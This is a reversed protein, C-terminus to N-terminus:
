LDYLESMKKLEQKIKTLFVQDGEVKACSGWSLVWRIAEIIHNTEFQIIIDEHDKIIEQQPHWRRERAYVACKGTFRVRVTVVKNGQFVGFYDGIFDDINFDEPIKFETRILRATLIRSIAFIRVEKRLHCYGIVYWEGKFGLIHYPNLKRKKPQKTGPTLYEMELVRNTNLANFVAKWVKTRIKPAPEPIFSLRPHLWDADITVKQPLSLRIKKFINELTRYLPTNHYQTLVKEAIYIAFIEGQQLELQPLKFEPDTYYYGHRSSDYEIPANLDYKMYEIDRQITRRNIKGNSESWKDAITRANVLQGRRMGRLIEQHIFLLRRLQAKAKEM